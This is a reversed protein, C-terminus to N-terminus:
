LNINLLPASGLPSKKRFQFLRSIGTLRHPFNKNSFHSSNPMVLIFTEPYHTLIHNHKGPFWQSYERIDNNLMRLAHSRATQLKGFMQSKTDGDNHFNSKRLWGSSTTSDTMALICSLPPLKENILDIWPGIISSLHEMMNVSARARLNTPLEWRWAEGQHNYGGLGAPM